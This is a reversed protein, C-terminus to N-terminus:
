PNSRTSFNPAEPRTIRGSSELFGFGEFLDSEVRVVSEISVLDGSQGRTGFLFDNPAALTLAVDAIHEIQLQLDGTGTHVTVTDVLSHGAANAAASISSGSIQGIQPADGLDAADLLVRGTGPELIQMIQLWRAEDVGVSLLSHGGSMGFDRPGRSHDRFGLGSVRTDHGDVRVTGSFSVRQAYWPDPEPGLPLRWPPSNCTMELWLSTPLRVDDSVPKTFTTVAPVRQLAGNLEVNWRRLPESCRFRLGGAGPENGTRPAWCKGLLVNGDALFIMVIERWLAPDWQASSVNLWFGIGSGPDFGSFQYSEV